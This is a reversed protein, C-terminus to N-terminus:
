SVPDPRQRAPQVVADPKETKLMLTVRLVPCTRSVGAARHPITGPFCVLRGPRPYSVALIDSWDSTYFMTEGGWDPYWEKHPYYVSTYSTLVVSDTHVTGDSGYQLGNAYCRVLTHGKLLLKSVDDWFCWILPHCAKLEDACDVGRYAIERGQEGKGEQERDSKLSGAFHRHWFRFVDRTRNSRWGWGWGAEMVYEFLEERREDPLFDDFV